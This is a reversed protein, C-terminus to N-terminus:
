HDLIETCIYYNSCFEVSSGLEEVGHQV